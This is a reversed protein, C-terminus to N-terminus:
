EGEHGLDRGAEAGDQAIEIAVAEGIGVDHLVGVRRAAFDSAHVAAHGHQEFAVLVARERGRAPRLPRM